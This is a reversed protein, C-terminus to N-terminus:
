RNKGHGKGGAGQSSHSGSMVDAAPTDSAVIPNAVYPQASAASLSQGYQEHCTVAKGRSDKIFYGDERPNWVFVMGGGTLRIARKPGADKRMQFIKGGYELLSNEVRLTEGAGACSLYAYACSSHFSGALVLAILRYM